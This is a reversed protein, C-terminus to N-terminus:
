RTHIKVCQYEFKALSLVIIETFNEFSQNAGSNRINFTERIINNLTLIHSIFQSPFLYGVAYYNLYTQTNHKYM